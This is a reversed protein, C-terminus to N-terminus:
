KYVKVKQAEKEDKDFEDYYTEAMKIAQRNSFVKKKKGDSTYYKSLPEMYDIIYSTKNPNRTTTIEKKTDNLDIYKEGDKKLITIYGYGLESMIFNSGISDTVIDKNPYLVTISALFLDDINNREFM